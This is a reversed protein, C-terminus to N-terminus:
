PQSNHKTWENVGGVYVLTKVNGRQSLLGAIKDAWGCKESQCYLVVKCERLEQEYRKLFRVFGVESVTIPLNVATPLHFRAFAEEPRADILLCKDEVLINNLEALSITASVRNFHVSWVVRVANENWAFGDPLLAIGSSLAMSVAVMAYGNQIKTFRQIGFMLIISLVAIIATRVGLFWFRERTGQKSVSLAAGDWIALLSAKSIIERNAPPDVIIASGDPEFGLFLIWHNYRATGPSRVHLIMPTNSFELDEVGLGVHWTANLHNDLALRILDDSSSGVSGTLYKEKVLSELPLEVDLSRAAHFFCYLGCYSSPTKSDVYEMELGDQPIGFLTQCAMCVLLVIVLHSTM